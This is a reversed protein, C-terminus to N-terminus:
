LLRLAFIEPGCPTVYNHRSLVEPVACSHLFSAPITAYPTPYVVSPNIRPIDTNHTESASVEYQQTLERGELDHVSHVTTGLVQATLDDDVIAGTDGGIIHHVFM